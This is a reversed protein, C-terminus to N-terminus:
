KAKPLCSTADSCMSSDSDLRPQFLTEGPSETSSTERMLVSDRRWRLYGVFVLEKMHFDGKYLPRDNFAKKCLMVLSKLVSADMGRLWHYM